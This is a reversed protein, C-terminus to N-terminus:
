NKNGHANELLQHGYKDYAINSAVHHQVSGHADRFCRQLVSSDFLAGAGAFHFLHSVANAATETCYALASVVHQEEGPTLGGNADCSEHADSLVQGALSRTSEVCLRGKGFEYRFAGRDALRGDAMRAKKNAYGALEDFFRECVGLTFGFNEGAVYAQYGVSYMSGGRQVGHRPDIVLEDPVFADAVTVDVSGTGKLAMVNWDGGIAADAAAVILLRVETGGTDIAPLLVWEAHPSGSAYRYTGAVTVGGDVSAFRGSPVSSGAFMPAVNSGFVTDVGADSLLAGAMGGTGAHNFGIWAATPNAYSLAAFYSLQDPMSLEDGGIEIPAKVMPTRIRRLVEVLEPPATGLAEAPAALADLEDHCERIEAVLAALKRATM